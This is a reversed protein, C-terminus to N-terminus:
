AADREVERRAKLWHEVDRGDPRGEALWISYARERVRQEDCPKSKFPGAPLTQDAFNTKSARAIPAGGSDNTLKVDRLGKAPQKRMTAM